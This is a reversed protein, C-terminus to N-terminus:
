IREGEAKKAIETYSASESPIKEELIEEVSIKCYKSLRKLYESCADQWYKEKLKGVAVVKIVM